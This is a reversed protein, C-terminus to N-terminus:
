SRGGVNPINLANIRSDMLTIMCELLTKSGNLILKQMMNSTKLAECRKEAGYKQTAPFLEVTQFLAAFQLAVEPPAPPAPM